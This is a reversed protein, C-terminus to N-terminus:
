VPQMVTGSPTTPVRCGYAHGAQKYDTIGLACISICLMYNSYMKMVQTAKIFRKVKYKSFHLHHWHDSKLETFLVMVHGVPLQTTKCLITILSHQGLLLVAVLHFSLPHDSWVLSM